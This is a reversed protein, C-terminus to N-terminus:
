LHLPVSRYWKPGGGTPGKARTVCGPTALRLWRGPRGWGLAGLGRCAQPFHVRLLASHRLSLLHHRRPHTREEELWTGRSAQGRGGCVGDLVQPVALVDDDEVPAAVELDPEVM